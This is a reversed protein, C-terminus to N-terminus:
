SQSIYLIAMIGCVVAFQAVVRIRMGTQSANQDRGSLWNWLGLLVVAITAVIVLIAAYPASERIMTVPDRSAAQSLMETLRDFGFYIAVATFSLIVGGLGFGLVYRVNHGTVGSRVDEGSITAPREAITKNM